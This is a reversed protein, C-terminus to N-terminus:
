FMWTLSGFLKFDEGLQVGRLSHHVPVQAAAELIINAGLYCQAGPQIFVVHGGTNELEVGAVEEMDRLEGSLGLSLFTQNAAQGITAPRVRYRVNVDYNLSDGYEYDVNGSEGEGKVAALANAALSWRGRAHQLSAGFLGDTSGTGLQAHADLFTGNDARGDTSGSPVKVGAILAVSTTAELTHYELAKFRALLSMDGLGEDGGHQHEVTPLATAAEDHGHEEHEHQEHEDEHAGEGHGHELHGDIRTVRLPLVGILTLRPLPSWFGGIETTYYQEEAGPNLLENEGDYVRDLETYRQTIRLGKGNVTDLPSIGQSILCYDCAQAIGTLGAFAMGCGWRWWGM